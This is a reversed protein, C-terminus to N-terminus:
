KIGWFTITSGANMYYSEHAPRLHLSLLSQYTLDSSGTLGQYVCFTRIAADGRGCVPFEVRTVTGSRCELSGALSQYTTSGVYYHSSAAETDGNPYLLMGGHGLLAFDAWVAQWEGWNIDQVDMTFASGDSIQETTTFTKLRTLGGKQSLEWLATDVAANDANFDVRMIRDTEEWQNLLFNETKLM